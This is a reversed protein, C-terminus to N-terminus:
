VCMDSPIHPGVYIIFKFSFNQYLHHYFLTNAHNGTLGTVHFEYCFFSTVVFRTSLASNGFHMSSLSINVAENQRFLLSHSIFNPLTVGM